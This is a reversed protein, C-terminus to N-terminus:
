KVKLDPDAGHLILADVQAQMIIQYAEYLTWPRGKEFEPFIFFHHTKLQFRKKWTSQYINSLILAKGTFYM